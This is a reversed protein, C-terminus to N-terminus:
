RHHALDRGARGKHLPDWRRSPRCSTQAVLPDLESKIWDKDCSWKGHKFDPLGSDQVARETKPHSVLSRDRRQAELKADRDTITKTISSYPNFRARKDVSGVNYANAASITALLAAVALLKNM